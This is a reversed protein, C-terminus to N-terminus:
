SSCGDRVHAKKCRKQLLQPSLALPCVGDFLTVDIKSFFFVAMPQTRQINQYFVALTHSISALTTGASFVNIYAVGMGDGTGWGGNKGANVHLGVHSFGGLHAHFVNMIISIKTDLRVELTRMEM